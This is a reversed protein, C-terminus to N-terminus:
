LPYQGKYTGNRKWLEVTGRTIRSMVASLVYPQEFVKRYQHSLVSARLKDTLHPTLQGFVMVYDPKGDWIADIVDQPTRQNNGDNDFWTFEYFHPGFGSGAFSYRFIYGEESLVSTTPSMKPRLYEIMPTLNPYSQELQATQHIGIAAIVATIGIPVMNSRRALRHLFWAALPAAVAIPYVMHKFMSVMDASRVHMAILPLSLLLLLVHFRIARWNAGTRSIQMALSALALGLVPAVYSAAIHLIGMRSTNAAHAQVIQNQYLMRLDPWRRYAYDALIAACPLLAAVLLRPRRIAVVLALVPAHVAVVYKSLIAVAFVTSAAICILWAYKRHSMGIVLLWLSATFFFFSIVDYTAFKSIFIHPAQLSLLAVSWAAVRTSGFLARTGGFVFALSCLGLLLSVVRAGQLGGLSEGIGLIHLPIHSSFMYTYSNWPLGAKLARGVYLYDSEDLYPGNFNLRLRQWTTVATLVGLALSILTTRRSSALVPSEDESM